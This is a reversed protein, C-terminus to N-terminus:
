GELCEGAHVQRIGPRFLVQSVGLTFPLPFLAKIHPRELPCEQM